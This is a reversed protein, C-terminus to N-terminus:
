APRIIGQGAWKKAMKVQDELSYRASGALVHPKRFLSLFNFEEESIYFLNPARCEFLCFAAQPQKGIAVAYKESIMDPPLAFKELWVNNNLRLEIGPLGDLIFLADPMLDAQGIEHSRRNMAWRYIDLRVAENLYQEDPEDGDSAINLFAKFKDRLRLQNQMMFVSNSDLLDSLEILLDIRPPSQKSFLRKLLIKHDISPRRHQILYRETQNLASLIQFTTIAVFVEGFGSQDMERSLAHGKPIKLMRLNFQEAQRSLRTGPFVTLPSFLINSVGRLKLTIIDNVFSETTQGPLGFILDVQPMPGSKGILELAAFQKENRTRRDIKKAVQKDLTEIGLSIIRCGAARGAQMYKEDIHYSDPYIYFVTEGTNYHKIIEFIEMARSPSGGFHSDCVRVHKFRERCLFAIESEVAKLPRLRLTNACYYCYACNDRCGRLTELAVPQWRGLRANVYDNKVHYVPPLAALDKVFYDAQGISIRNDIKLALGPLDAALSDDAFHYALEPFTFDAEGCLVADVASRSNLLNAADELDGTQPGGFVTFIEPNLSKALEALNLNAQYNWFFNSFALIDPQLLSIDQLFSYDMELAFRDYNRVQFRINLRDFFRQRLTEYFYAAALSFGASAPGPAM